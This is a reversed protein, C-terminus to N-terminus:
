EALAPTFVARGPCNGGLNLLGHGYTDDLGDPGRDGASATLRARIEEPTLTPDHQLWLAVAATVYPAAFSTGTKWRAGKVSAATWVEVGPAALEVHAGRIARRYITGSRDVATVAIVSDYAAPYAPEARPGDNGAAAIVPIRRQETLQLLTDELVTNPPGALSLNIVQVGRESLHDLARVLTFADTREDGSARHFADVAVLPLGPLLGPVRTEPDGVLIAAVATGHIAASASYEEPAIRTLDIDAGALVQHDANLGTDVMGITVPAGCGEPGLAQPWGILARAPCHLGDCAPATAAIPIVAASDQGARYYHNFDAAEAGPLARITDRAADLTTGEPVQFRRVTTALSVLDARELVVYGQTVLATTQDDTLGRAVIEAPAREPRPAPQPAPRRRARQPEVPQGRFLRRLGRIIERPDDVEGSNIGGRSAGGGTSSSSSSGGGDDGDDGDGGDGDGGDGDDAWAPAAIMSASLTSVAGLACLWAAFVLVTGGFVRM